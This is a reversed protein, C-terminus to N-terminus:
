PKAPGTEVHMNQFAKGLKDKLDRYHLFLDMERKADAARGAKRYMMSLRYHATMNTPDDKIASELLTTAEATQNSSILTIALNTKADSDGPQLALAKKYNEQAGKIDGKAALIEGLRAWSKEDYQNAKIAAKYEAEAQAKQATDTSSHLQEALEYHVGPLEPNLRIAERYQAISNARDGQRGFEGGMMMHMQASNPAVVLMSLLSQAMMQSSLEYSVFIVEPDQPLSAQLTDVVALAKAFQGMATDLEVLELGAQKQIKKDNLSPYAQELDIQAAAQDGTRKEAIGLLARIRGLDPQLQVAARMEPIAEAFNNEFYLLVGLNARANLNNPDLTVIERLLPIAQRPQQKQLYSQIQGELASIKQKPDQSEQAVAPLSAALIALVGFVRLFQPKMHM